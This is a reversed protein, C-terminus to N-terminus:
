AGSLCPQERQHLSGLTARRDRQPASRTTYNSPRRTLSKPWSYAALLGVEAAGAQQSTDKHGSALINRPLRSADKALREMDSGDARAPSDAM